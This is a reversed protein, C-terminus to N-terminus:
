GHLRHENVSNVFASLPWSSAHIRLAGWFFRCRIVLRADQWVRIPGCPGVFGCDPAPM